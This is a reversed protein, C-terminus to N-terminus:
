ALATPPLPLGLKGITQGNAMPLSRLSRKGSGGSVWLNLTTSASGARATCLREDANMLPQM